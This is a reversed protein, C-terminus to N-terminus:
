EEALYEAFEDILTQQDPSLAPYQKRLEEILKLKHKKQETLIQEEDPMYLEPHRVIDELERAVVSVTERYMYSGYTYDEFDSIRQKAESETFNWKRRLYLCIDKKYDDFSQEHHFRQMDQYFKVTESIEEWRELDVIHFHVLVEKFILITDNFPLEDRAFIHYPEGDNRYQIIEVHFNEGDRNAQICGIMDERVPEYSICLYHDLKDELTKLIGIVLYEFMNESMPKAAIEINYAKGM